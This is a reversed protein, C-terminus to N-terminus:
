CNTISIDDLVTWEAPSTLQDDREEEERRGEPLLTTPVGSGAFTRIVLELQSQIAFLKVEKVTHM